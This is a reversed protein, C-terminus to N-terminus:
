VSESRCIQTHINQTKKFFTLKIIHLNCIAFNVWKQSDTILQSLYISVHEDGDELYLVNKDAWFTEEHLM